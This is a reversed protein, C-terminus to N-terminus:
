VLSSHFIIASVLFIRSGFIASVTCRTRTGTNM